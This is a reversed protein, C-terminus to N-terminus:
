RGDPNGEVEGHGRLRQRQPPRPPPLARRAFGALRTAVRRNITGEPYQGTIDPEGAPVGTLLAIGQDITEIPIVRFRGAAAAAAVDHRLM